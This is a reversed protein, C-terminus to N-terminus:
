QGGIVSPGDEDAEDRAQVVASLYAQIGEAIAEALLDLYVTSRLRQEDGPHSMFGCEVLVAPCPADRLVAFRARKLGRDVAGTKRILSRHVYHGLLTNAADHANGPYIGDDPITSTTPPFGRAPLVFSEIGGAQRSHAKNAHISVFLDAGKRRALDTRYELSRTWDGKRTLLVAIGQARLIDTVRRSIAWTIDKELLGPIEAGPDRGGHGPDIMVLEWGQERLAPGPTFLPNWITEVDMRNIHWLGNTRGSGDNLWLLIDDLVFRRSNSTFEATRGDRSMHYQDHPAATREFAGAAQLAQLAIRDPASPEPPLPPLAILSVAQVLPILPILNLLM